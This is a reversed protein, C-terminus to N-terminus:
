IPSQFESDDKNYKKNIDSGNNPSIKTCSNKTEQIM